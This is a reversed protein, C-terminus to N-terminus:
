HCFSVFFAIKLYKQGAPASYNFVFLNIAYISELCKVKMQQNRKQKKNHYNFTFAACRRSCFFVVSFSLNWSSLKIVFIVNEASNM